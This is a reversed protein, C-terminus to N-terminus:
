KRQVTPMEDLTRLMTVVKRQFTRVSGSTDVTTIPKMKEMAYKQGHTLPVVAPEGTMTALLGAGLM